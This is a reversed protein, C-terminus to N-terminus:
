SKDGKCGGSDTPDICPGESHGMPDRATTLTAVMLFIWLAVLRARTQM